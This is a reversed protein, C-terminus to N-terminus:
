FPRERRRDRQSRACTNRCAAARRGQLRRGADVGRPVSRNVGRDAVRNDRARQWRLRGRPSCPDSFSQAKAHRSGTTIIPSRQPDCLAITLTNDRFSIPVIRYMNAMTETVLNLVNPPIVTDALHIVQMGWQEALAQALQEENILGQAEALKGLLQGPHQEQEELLQELQDDTIFGLDVLIQGIRRIAM